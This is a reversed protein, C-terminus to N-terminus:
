EGRMRFSSKPYDLAIQWGAWAVTSLKNKDVYKDIV